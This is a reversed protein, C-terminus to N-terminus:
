FFPSKPNRKLLDLKIKKIIKKTNKVDQDFNSTYPPYIHRLEFSYKGSRTARELNEITANEEDELKLPTKRLFSKLAHVTIDGSLRPGDKRIEIPNIIKNKILYNKLFCEISLGFFMLVHRSLEQNSFDAKKVKSKPKYFEAKQKRFSNKYKKLLLEAIYENIEASALFSNPGKVRSVYNIEFFRQRTGKHKNNLM